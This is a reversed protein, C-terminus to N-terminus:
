NMHGHFTTNTIEIVDHVRIAVISEGPGVLIHNRKFTSDKIILTDVDEAYIAGGSEASCGRFNDRKFYVKSQGLM